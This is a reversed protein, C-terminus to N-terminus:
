AHGSMSVPIFSESDSARRFHGPYGVHYDATFNVSGRGVLNGVAFKRSAIVPSQLGPLVSLGVEPRKPVRDRGRRPHQYGDV